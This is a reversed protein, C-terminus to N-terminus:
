LKKEKEREEEQMGPSNQMEDQPHASPDLKKLKNIWGREYSYKTIKCHCHEITVDTEL